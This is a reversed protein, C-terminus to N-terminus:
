PALRTSYTRRHVELYRTYIGKKQKQQVTVNKQRFQSTEEDLKQYRPIKGRRRINISMKKKCHLHRKKPGRKARRKKTNSKPIRQDRKKLRPIESIYLLGSGAEVAVRKFSTPGIEM